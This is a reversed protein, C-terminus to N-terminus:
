VLRHQMWKGSKFRWLFFVARAAWDLYMAYWIGQIQLGLMDGLIFSGLTRFFIVSLVAAYMVFRNDGAARLSNPLGFSPAWLFVSILSYVLIMQRTHAVAEPSLNLMSIIPNIFIAVLACTLLLSAYTAIQLKVTAQKAEENRNAGVCQSVITITALNIANAPISIYTSITNSAASAAIMAGSYGAILMGIVLKCALFIINEMGSPLAVSIIRRSDARRFGLKLPLSYHIPAQQNLLFRTVMFAGIIRSIITALGAGSIEMHFMYILIYNLLIKAANMVVSTLMSLRSYGQAYLMGTGGSYIAQAPYSIATLLFYQRSYDMIGTSVKPYILRLLSGNLFIAPLAIVVSVGLVMIFTQTATNEASKRDQNGLYQAAIISGGAGIVMFVQMLLQNISDVLSFAALASESIGSLLMTDVLGVLVIMFQEFILPMLLKKISKPTFLKPESLKSLSM